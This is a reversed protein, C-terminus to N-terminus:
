IGGERIVLAWTHDWVIGWFSRSAGSVRMVGPVVQNWAPRDDLVRLEVRFISHEPILRGEEDERVPIDGSFISALYPWDMQPEDVQHVEQLVAERIIRAADNPYFWGTNGEQLRVQDEQSTFAKVVYGSDDICHALVDEKAVWRGPALSSALDTVHGSFPARLILQAKLTLLGQLEERKGHLAQRILVHDNRDEKYVAVRHLRAELAKMQHTLVNIQHRLSPSDLVFLIDDKQVRDGEQVHVTQIQSPTPPYILARQRAELLAPMSITSDLPLAGLVLGCVVGIMVCRGRWSEWVEARRTWWVQFEQGLPWLVFWGIEVLFLIIGLAKFAYQYVLLAIGVFMVARFIWTIWAYFILRWQQSYPLVEPPEDGWAFLGERLRWRGLAFARAQLNPIGLWDSLVYYGDFRLCPNLNIMLGSVWNTTALVFLVSRVMGDPCLNWLFTAVMAVGLEVVTGAVAIRARQQRSQLKWSDTADTYLVPFLLLFGVGLTHVRCGYRTATYAHGMEHLVKTGVLGLGFVMLGQLSYFYLFTAQFAEWQVSIGMLGLLGVLCVSMRVRRSFCPEVIPYTRQLFHDPNWLPIRFFLYHHLLTLIWHRSSVKAQRYLGRGGDHPAELTLHHQYLFGIFEHIERETTQVTTQQHLAELLSSVTGTQWYSLFQFARWGIQFYQDRVPDFINWTGQGEVTPTGPMIHLDERLAPLSDSAGSQSDNNM